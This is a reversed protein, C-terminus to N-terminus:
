LCGYFLRKSYHLLFLFTKPDIFLLQYMYKKNSKKMKKRERSLLKREKGIEKSIDLQYSHLGDDKSNNFFYVHDQVKDVNYLVVAHLTYYATQNFM